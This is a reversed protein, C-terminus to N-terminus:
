YQIILMMMGRWKEPGKTWGCARNTAELFAGKFVKSCGEVYWVVQSSENFKRVNSNFDSRVSVAYLKSM